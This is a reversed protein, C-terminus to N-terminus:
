PKVRKVVDPLVAKLEDVSKASDIRPDNSIRKAIVRAKPLDVSLDPKWADRFTRDAPIEAETIEKHSVYGEKVSKWKEIEAAVDANGVTRMISVGGDSRTIAIIAM